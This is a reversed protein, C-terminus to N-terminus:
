EFWHGLVNGPNQKNFLIESGEQLYVRSVGEALMSDWCPKCAWWHGWLYLEAGQVAEGSTKATEVARREAHNNPHCGECLEYGEGTPIDQRVRECVNTKHFDSGNAGTGIVVGNSVLVAGTKVADDLSYLKAMERAFEMYPNDAPVFGFDRGDPLYPYGHM